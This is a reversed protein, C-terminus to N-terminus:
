GGTIETLSGQAVNRGKLWEECVDLIEAIPRKGRGKLACEWVLLIKWGGKRLVDVVGRDRLRNQEVKERWFETRTTPLRFLRCDHGHWFCGNVFIVARYKPFVLDPTGALKASHLRFRYGRSHLGKRVLIEPKTNKSGVSAM